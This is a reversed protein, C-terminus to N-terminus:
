QSPWTSENFCRSITAFGSLMLTLYLLSWKACASVQYIGRPRHRRVTFSSIIKASTYLCLIDAVPLKAKAGPCIGCGWSLAAQPM